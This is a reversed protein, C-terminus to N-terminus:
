SLIDKLTEEDLDMIDKYDPYVLPFGNIIPDIVEVLESFVFSNGLHSFHVGDYFYEKWDDERLIKNFLDIFALNFHSALERCVNVFPEVHEKRLKGTEGTKALLYKNWSDHDVPPPSLLIIHKIDKQQLQNIISTMNQHYSEKMVHRNPVADNTGLLVTAISISSEESHDQSLLRPLMHKLYQSTYGDYGRNIVDCKRIYKNALQSAFGADAFGYQTNSDGILYVKCAKHQVRKILNNMELYLPM